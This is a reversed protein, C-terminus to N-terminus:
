EGEEKRQRKRAHVIESERNLGVFVGTENREVLYRFLGPCGRIRKRSTFAVFLLDQERYLKDRARRQLEDLSLPITSHYRLTATLWKDLLHFREVDM